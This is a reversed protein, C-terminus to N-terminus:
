FISNKFYVYKDYFSKLKKSCKEKTFLATKEMQKCCINNILLM